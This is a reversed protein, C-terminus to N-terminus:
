IESVVVDSPQTLAFIVTSAVREPKMSLISNKNELVNGIAENNVKGPNISTVKVKLGDSILEHRFGETLYAVATKSANYVKEGPYPLMTCGATSNINIIHGDIGYKKMSKSSERCCTIVAIFNLNFLYKWDNTEGDLIKSNISTNANNITVSVGQGITTEIWKFVNIIESKNTLDCQIPYIKAVSSQLENTFKQLLIIDRAVAVIKLPYKSLEVIISRGIESNAETVLFVRDTWRDM